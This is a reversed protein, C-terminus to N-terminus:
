ARVRVLSLATPDLGSASCKLRLGLARAGLRRMPESSLVSFDAFILGARACFSCHGPQVHVKLPLRFAGPV